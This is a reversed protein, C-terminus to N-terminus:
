PAVMVDVTVVPIGLNYAAQLGHHGGLIFYDSDWHLVLPPRQGPELGEGSRLTREHKAVRERDVVRQTAILSDMPVALPRTTKLKGERALEWSIHQVNASTVADAVPIGHVPEANEPLVHLDAGGPHDSSKIAEPELLPAASGLKM